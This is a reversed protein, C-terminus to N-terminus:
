KIKAIQVRSFPEKRETFSQVRSLLGSSFFCLNEEKKIYIEFSSVMSLFKKYDYRRHHRLFYLFLFFFFKCM